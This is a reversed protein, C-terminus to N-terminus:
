IFINYYTIPFKVAGYNYKTQNILKTVITYIMNKEIFDVRLVWLWNYSIKINNWALLILNSNKACNLQVRVYWALNCPYHINPYSLTYSSLSGQTVTHARSIPYLPSIYCHTKPYSLTYSSLSSRQRTDCHTHTMYSM